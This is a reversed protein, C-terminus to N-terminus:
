RSGSVAPPRAGIAGRLRMPEAAAPQAAEKAASPSDFSTVDGPATGAKLTTSFLQAVYVTDGNVAAGVGTRDYDPFSLNERHAPSDMWTELFRRAFADPDVGTQAV